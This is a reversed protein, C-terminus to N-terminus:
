FLMIVHVFPILLEAEGGGGGVCVCMWCLCIYPFYRQAMRQQSNKMAIMKQVNQLALYVSTSQFNFTSSLEDVCGLKESMDPSVWQEEPHFGRLKPVALPRLFAPGRGESCASM